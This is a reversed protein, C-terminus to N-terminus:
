EPDITGQLSSMVKRKETPDTEHGRSKETMLRTDSSRRNSDELPLKEKLQYESPENKNPSPGQSNDKARGSIAKELPPGRLGNKSSLDWGGDLDM